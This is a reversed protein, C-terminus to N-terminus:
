GVDPLHLYNCECVKTRITEKVIPLPNPVDIHDGDDKEGWSITSNCFYRLYSDKVFHICFRSDLRM